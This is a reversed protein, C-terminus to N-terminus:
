VTNNSKKLALIKYDLEKIQLTLQLKQVRLKDREYELNHRAAMNHEKIIQCMLRDIDILSYMDSLQFLETQKKHNITCQTYINRLKLEKEFTDEVYDNFDTKYVHKLDFTNFTKEHAQIRQLLNSSKGYKYTEKSNYM